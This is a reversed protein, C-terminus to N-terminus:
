ENYAELEVCIVGMANEVTAIRYSQYFMDGLAEGEVIEFTKGQEPLHGDTDDANFFVKETVLYVGQMHDNQLITRDSQKIKTVVVPIDTYEEGDFRITHLDAIEGINMFVGKSDAQVVDNFSM